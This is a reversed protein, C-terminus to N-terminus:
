PKRAWITGFITECWVLECPRFGLKRLWELWLSPLVPHDAGHHTRRWDDLEERSVGGQLVDNEWHNWIRETSEASESTMMVSFSFIGGPRLSEYVNRCVSIKKDNTSPYHLALNSLVYDFYNLRRFGIMDACIIETRAPYPSLNEKCKKVMEENIDIATLKFVGQRKLIKQSLSGTGCGLELVVLYSEHESFCNLVSNMMEEYYPVFKKIRRDYSETDAFNSILISKEKSM